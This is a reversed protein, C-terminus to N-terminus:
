GHLFRAADEDGEAVEMEHENAPDAIDMEDGADQDPDHPSSAPMIPTAPAQGGFPM